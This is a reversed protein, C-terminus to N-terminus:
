VTPDVAELGGPGLRVASPEWRLYPEVDHTVVVADRGSELHRGLWELTQVRARRDLGDLPEDLLLLGPTGIRAAALLVRHRQGKSLERVSRGAVAGLGLAELAAGVAEPGQRRLGAVLGLVDRVAAFPTVDPSEPVYALESRAEAEEIWLDLGYISVRGADPAEVGALLRLLTSKGAGNPGLVMTLGAALEGSLDELM